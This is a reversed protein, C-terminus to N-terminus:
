AIAYFIYTGDTFDGSIQFGSSLPDIYDTNTVEPQSTGNLTLYPDNGSVIGRTTDWFYWDGTADTRKLLVFRAGSAFGCDVDTSSGSHTVLGVKSVGDLSAFLYAISTSAQNVSAGVSFVSSTPATDNWVSSATGAASTENLFLYKTAGLGSHYVFWNSSGARSKVWMMEAPVTLNHNHTGASGTGTFAVVDFFNPARKMFYKIFPFSANWVNQSSDSSGAVVGNQTDFGSLGLEANESFAQDTRLRKNGTLRSFLYLGNSNNGTPQHGVMFTDTVDINAAITQNASYDTVSIDFVETASEPPALPGRRIAIYIYTDSTGLGDEWFGQSDLGMYYDPGAEAASSEAKLTMVQGNNPPKSTFFRMSDAIFWSGASNIKKWMVWQPEFGLNILSGSSSGTFSGCKIIDADANPGFEGDGDNHAFIYAVYTDTNNNTFGSNGVFFATSTPATNGWTYITAQRAATTNLRIHYGEPSSADVGRHYVAWDTGAANTKKVIICGPTSGLNHAISRGQVGNGTYTVVDFFKEAKRFTWSAYTQNNANTDGETGVLFGNTNFQSVSQRTAESATNVTSLTKNVGRETDTLQHDYALSRGKQWVLGGEGSLDIGNIITQTSGNGDYLYTSFVEDVDLGAGGVGSASQMYKNATSM